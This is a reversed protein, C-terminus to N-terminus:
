GIPWLTLGQGSFSCAYVVPAHVPVGDPPRRAPDGADDTPGPGCTRSRASRRRTGAQVGLWVIAASIVLGIVPDALPYGAWVGLAGALVALSTWGDVRAHYGDAVQGEGFSWGGAL